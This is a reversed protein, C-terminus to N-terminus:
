CCFLRREPPSSESDSEYEIRRLLDRSRMWKYLKQHNQNYALKTLNPDNADLILEAHMWELVELQDAAAACVAITCGQADKDTDDLQGKAHLKKLIDLRGHTAAHHAMTRGDEDKANVECTGISQLWRMANFRGREKLEANAIAVITQMEKKDELDLLGCSVLWELIHASDSQASLQALTHGSYTTMKTELLNERYLWELVNLQGSCAALHAVTLGNRDPSTIDLLGQSYLWQLVRVRGFETACTALTMGHIDDTRQPLSCEVHLWKLLFLLGDVSAEYPFTSDFKGDSEREVEPDWEYM